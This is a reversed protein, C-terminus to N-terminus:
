CLKESKRFGFENILSIQNEIFKNSRTNLWFVQEEYDKGTKWTTGLTIKTLADNMVDHVSFNLTPEISSNWLFPADLNSCLVSSYYPKAISM